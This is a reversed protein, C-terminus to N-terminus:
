RYVASPDAGATAVAVGRAASLRNGRRGSQRRQPATPATNPGAMRVLFRAVLGDDDGKLLQSVLRDPQIGGCIGWLLHAVIVETEGDKVRDPTWLRGGYAQLWFARDSGNGHSYRDMGGIWGSLEDRPLLLGRPNSHSLLAAKEITPDTSLLRRRQVPQPDEAKTPMDPPPLKKRVAEKVESEWIVRQEKAEACDRKFARRRQEWDENCDTELQALSGTITDLGPSKGSSPRGVTGVLLVPPETWGRWPQGWRANGILTGTTAFLPLAVYDVACGAGEAANNVWGRWGAPLLKEPFPPAAIVQVDLILKDPDPWPEPQGAVTDAPAEPPQIGIYETPGAGTGNPQPPLDSWPSLETM